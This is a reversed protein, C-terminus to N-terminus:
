FYNNEFCVQFEEEQAHATTCSSLGEKGEEWARFEEEQAHATTEVKRRGKRM